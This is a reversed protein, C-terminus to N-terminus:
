KNKEIYYSNLAKITAPGVYGCYTGDNCKLGKEEQFKKVAEETNADFVNGAPDVGLLEELKKIDDGKSGITLVKKFPAVITKTDTKEKVAATVVPKTPKLNMFAKRTAPGTVGCYTGDNCKLGKAEQFAMVGKETDDDFTGNIKFDSDLYGLCKLTEQLAEVDKGKSGLQLVKNLNIKPRCEDSKEVVNNEVTSVSSTTKTTDVSALKSIINDAYAIANILNSESTSPNRGYIKRFEAIAEKEKTLDRRYEKPLGYALIKLIEVDALSASPKRSFIKAFDVKAKADATKNGSRTDYVISASAIFLAKNDKDFFKVYVYQTTAETESLEWSKEKAFAERPSFGFNSDKSIAVITAEAPAVLTVKVKRANTETAGNNISVSYDSSKGTLQDDTPVTGQKNANDVDAICRVYSVYDNYKDCSAYNGVTPSSVATTSSTTTQVTQPKYSGVDAAGVQKIPLCAFFSAMALLLLFTKKNKM